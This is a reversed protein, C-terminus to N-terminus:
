NIAMLLNNISGLLSNFNSKANKGQCIAVKRTASMGFGYEVFVQMYVVINLAVSFIGYKDMDLIRVIYPLTLFPIAANFFQLLYLWVGNNFAKKRLLSGLEYM